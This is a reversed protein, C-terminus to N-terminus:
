SKTSRKNKKNKKSKKKSDKKGGKLLYKLGKIPPYKKKVAYCDASASNAWKEFDKLMKNFIEIKTKVLNNKEFPDDEINYLEWNGDTKKGKVIKYKHTM